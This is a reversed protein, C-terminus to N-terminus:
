YIHTIKRVFLNPFGQFGEADGDVRRQGPTHAAVRLQQQAPVPVHVQRRDGLGALNQPPMKSLAEKGRIRSRNFVDNQVVVYPHRYGPESGSPEDLEIWYVDGQEIM